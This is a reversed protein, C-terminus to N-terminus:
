VLQEKTIGCEQGDFNSGCSDNDTQLFYFSAMVYEIYISIYVMMVDVGVDEVMLSFIM